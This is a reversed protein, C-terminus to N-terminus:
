YPEAITRIRLAPWVIRLVVQKSTDEDPIRLNSINM